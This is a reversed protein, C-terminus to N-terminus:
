QGLPLTVAQKAVHAAQYCRSSPKPITELEQSRLHWTLLDDFSKRIEELRQDSLPESM